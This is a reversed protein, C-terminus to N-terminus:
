LRNALVCTGMWKLIEGQESFGEARFTYIGIPLKAGDDGTGDWKLTGQVNLSVQNALQRVNRGAVDFIQVNIRIGTVQLNYQLQVFDDLGDGDPSFVRVDFAFMEQTLGEQRTQSNPSTPTGFGAAEAASQWNSPDNTPGNTRIRELSVGNDDKLLSLHYLSSYDFADIALRESGRTRYITVNGQDDAMSPLDMEIVKDAQTNQYAELIFNRDPTLVIYEGPDLIRQAEIKEVQSQADLNAVFLSSLLISKQTPNYLEVYDSGGSAPNFLIENIVIEGSEALEPITFTFQDTTLEEGRCDLLNEFTLTYEPGHELGEQVILILEENQSGGAQLGAIPLNGNNIEVMSIMLAPELRKSFEIKIQEISPLITLVEFTSFSDPDFISNESGPTGGILGQSSGWNTKLACPDAPNIMELTWGGDDKAANNYWSTEYAVAHIIMGTSRQILEIEDGSNTLTPFSELAVVDGYIELEQQDSDDGLLVYSKPAITFKPLELNRTGNVLNVESLDIMEQTRNYIELFEVDPLGVSPNPDAMIETILLDYPNIQAQLGYISVSLLLIIKSSM